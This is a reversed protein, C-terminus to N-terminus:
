KTIEQNAPRYKKNRIQCVDDRVTFKIEDNAIERWSKDAVCKENETERWDAIQELGMNALGNGHMPAPETESHRCFSTCIFYRHFSAQWVKTMRRADDACSQVLNAEVRPHPPELRAARRGGRSSYRAQPSKWHRGICGGIRYTM